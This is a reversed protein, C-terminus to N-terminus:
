KEQILLPFKERLSQNFYYRCWFEAVELLRPASKPTLGDTYGPEYVETYERALRYAWYPFDRTVFCRLAYEFKLLYGSRVFHVTTWHVQRIDDGQCENIQRLLGNIAQTEETGQNALSHEMLAIADAVLAKHTEWEEPSFSESRDAENMQQQIKYALFLAFEEAARKEQCLSKISTLRTIQIAWRFDKSQLEQVTEIWKKIKAAIAAPKLKPNMLFYPNDRDDM